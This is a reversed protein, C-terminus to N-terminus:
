QAETPTPSTEMSGEEAGSSGVVIQVDYEYDDSLTEGAVVTYDKSLLEKIENYATQSVSEKLSVETKEYDYSDANGTDVTDFDLDSVLDEVKGAEGATGSGNLIELSLKSYDVPESTPTPTATPSVVQPQPSPGSLSQQSSDESVNQTYYYIGGGVAALIAVVVLFILVFKMKSGKQKSMTGSSNSSSSLWDGSADKTEAPAATDGQAAPTSPEVSATLDLPESASSDMTSAMTSTEPTSPRPTTLPNSDVSTETSSGPTEPAAETSPTSSSDQGVLSFSTVPASTESKTMDDSSESTTESDSPTEPAPETVPTESVSTEAPKDEPAVEEVTLRRSATEEKPTDDTKMATEAKTSKKTTKKKTKKKAPM